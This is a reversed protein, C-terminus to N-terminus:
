ELLMGVTLAATAGAMAGGIQNTRAVARGVCGGLGIRHDAKAENCFWVVSERDCRCRFGHM